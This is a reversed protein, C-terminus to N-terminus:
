KLFKLFITDCGANFVPMPLIEGTEEDVPITGFDKSNYLAKYKKEVREIEAKTKIWEPIHKFDWRGATARVSVSAGNRLFEGKGYKEAESLADAQIEKIATELTKAIRKLEIYQMLANEDGDIVKNVRSSLQENVFNYLEM